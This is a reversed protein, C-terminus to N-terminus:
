RREESRHLFDEYARRAEQKEVVEGEQWAEGVKMAFRSLSAGQPLTIRFTGELVRDEPNEFTLHLETLALPDEIAAQAKLATLKLGTGDSSTLRVPVEAESLRKADVLSVPAIALPEPTRARYVGFGAALATAALAGYLLTKERM